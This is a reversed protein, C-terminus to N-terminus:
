AEMELVIEATGIKNDKVIAEVEYTFGDTDKFIVPTDGSIEMEDFQECLEDFTM